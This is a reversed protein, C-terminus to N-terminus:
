IRRPDLPASLPLAAGPWAAGQGRATGPRGRRGAASLQGGVGPGRARRPDPSRHLREVHAAAAGAARGRLAGRTPGPHRRPAATSRTPSRRERPRRQRPGRRAAVARPGRPSPPGPLADGASDWSRAVPELRQTGGSGKLGDCAPTVSPEHEFRQGHQGQSEQHHRLLQEHKTDRGRGRRRDRLTASRVSAPIWAEDPARLSAGAAHRPRAARIRQRCGRSQVVAQTEVRVVRQSCHGGSRAVPPAPQVEADLPRNSSVGGHRRSRVPRSRHMRWGNWSAVLGQVAPTVMVFSSSECKPQSPVTVLSNREVSSTAKQIRSHPPRPASPARRAAAPGRGTPASSPPTAGGGDDRKRPRRRLWGGSPTAPRRSRRRPPSPPAPPQAAARRAAARRRTRGTPCGPRRPVLSSGGILAIRNSCASSARRIHTPVSRPLTM